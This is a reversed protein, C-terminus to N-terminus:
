FRDAFKKGIKIDIDFTALGDDVKCSFIRAVKKALIPNVSSVQCDTDEIVTKKDLSVVKGGLVELIEGLKDSVRNNGTSDIIGIKVIKEGFDNDSFYVTLRESIKGTTVYGVTGDNLKEKDLFRSEGLNIVDSSINKVNLSFLGIQLRDGFNINTAGPFFIFNLISKLNGRDFGPDVGCWLFTPFLFNQTVTEALLKGGVKENIGFQWVNKILFTGYNRAVEVQTDAPIVLTTMESLNPDLVTVAINGDTKKYVLSTKDEGNWVNTTLKLFVFIAGLLITPILLKLFPSQTKNDKKRRELYAKKRASKM